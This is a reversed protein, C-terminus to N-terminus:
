LLLLFNIPSSLLDLVKNSPSSAQYGRECVCLMRSTTHEQVIPSVPRSLIIVAPIAQTNHAHCLTRTYSIYSSFTTFTLRLPDLTLARLSQAGLPVSPRDSVM